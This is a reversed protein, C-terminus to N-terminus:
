SALEEMAADVVAARSRILRFHLEVEQAIETTLSLAALFKESVETFGGAAFEEATPQPKRCGPDSPLPGSWGGLQDGGWGAVWQM